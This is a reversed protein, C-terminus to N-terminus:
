SLKKELATVAVGGTAGVLVSVGAVYAFSISAGSDGAIMIMDGASVTSLDANYLDNFYGHVACAACTDTTYYYFLKKGAVGGIGQWNAINFAM